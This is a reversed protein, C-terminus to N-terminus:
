WRQMAVSASDGVDEDEECNSMVSKAVSNPSHDFTSSGVWEHGKPSAVVAPRKQSSAAPIEGRSVPEPVLPPVPQSLGPRMSSSTGTSSSTTTPPTGLYHALGFNVSPAPLTVFPSAPLPPLTKRTQAMQQTNTGRHNSINKEHHSQVQQQQQELRAGTILRFRRELFESELTERRQAEKLLRTSVIVKGAATPIHPILNDLPLLAEPPVVIDHNESVEAQMADLVCDIYRSKTTSQGVDDRSGGEGKIKREEHDFLLQTSSSFDEEDESNGNSSHLSRAVAPHTAVPTQPLQVKAATLAGFGAVAVGQKSLLTAAGEGQLAREMAYLGLGGVGSELARRSLLDLDRSAPVSAEVVRATLAEVVATSGKGSAENSSELSRQLLRTNVPPAAVLDSPTVGEVHRLSRSALVKSDQLLFHFKSSAALSVVGKSVTTPPGTGQKSSPHHGNRGFHLEFRLDLEQMRTELEKSKALAKQRAIASQREYKEARLGAAYRRALFGRVRSQLTVFHAETPNRILTPLRAIHAAVWQPGRLYQTSDREARLAVLLSSEKNKAEMALYKLEKAERHNAELNRVISPQGVLAALSELAGRKEAPTDVYSFKESHTATRQAPPDAAPVTRQSLSNSFPPLVQTGPWAFAIKSPCQILSDNVHRELSEISHKLENIKKTASANPILYDM